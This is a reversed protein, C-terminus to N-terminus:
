FHAGVAFVFGSGGGVFDYCSIAFSFPEDISSGKENLAIENKCV